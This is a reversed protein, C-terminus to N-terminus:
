RVVHQLVENLEILPRVLSNFGANGTLVYMMAFMAVQIGMMILLVNFTHLKIKYDKVNFLNSIMIFVFLFLLRPFRFFTSNLLVFPIFLLMGSSIWMLVQHFEKNEPHEKVLPRYSQYVLGTYIFIIAVHVVLKWLNTKLSTDELYLYLKSSSILLPAFKLAVSGLVVSLVTLYGIMRSKFERDICYIPVLLLLMIAYGSHILYSLYIFVTSYFLRKYSYRHKLCIPVIWILIAMALFFRKQIINDVLPYVSSLALVINPNKSYKKIFLLYSVVACTLIVTLFIELSFHMQYFIQNLLKWLSDGKFDFHVAENGFTYFMARYGIYDAGGRNFAFLIWLLLSNMGFVIKSSPFVLSLCILLLFIFYFIVM